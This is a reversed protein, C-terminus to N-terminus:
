LTAHHNLRELSVLLNDLRKTKLYTEDRVQAYNAPPTGDVHRDAEAPVLAQEAVIKAEIVQEYGSQWTKDKLIMEYLKKIEDMQSSPEEREFKAHLGVVYKVLRVMEDQSIVM